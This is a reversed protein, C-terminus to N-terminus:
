IRRPINGLIGARQDSLRKREALLETTEILELRRLAEDQQATLLMDDPVSDLIQRAQVGIDNLKVAIEDIAKKHLGAAFQQNKRLGLYPDPKINESM